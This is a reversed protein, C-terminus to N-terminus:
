PLQKPFCIYYKTVLKSLSKLNLQDSAEVVDEITLDKNLIRIPEAVKSYAQSKIKGKFIFYNSETLSINNQISFREKQILLEETSVKDNTLKIKLLDRNIIMKSLSSLIFDDQNQWSKLASIIDFDDLQAFLALTKTDFTEHTVKNEMFFLLPKSCPLVIGRETLEKARKLVKTLILEAVLSTKHLYVQWYMLRRSMLFKEVSYIGKEEIVLVDDVVNMMQILRESNVNGESVGSYFSDRKLYDMRDMDLQSSILQLMFKRHYDGKFVQIALSLQGNFENNLQEMFLLSIEEHHVDEVISSEMAHSFPGHGIDHLLIAIYLANEEETSITVEKFRLVEVAKQMLHMCGLAHHFRTHNAGPYVLYSLGMQSIRRLRQFYPHQILDYILANPITIFGYIPDNFIKLKNIQSV